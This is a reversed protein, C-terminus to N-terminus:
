AVSPGCGKPYELNSIGSELHSYRTLRGTSRSPDTIVPAQRRPNSRRPGAPRGEQAALRVQLPGAQTPWARAISCAGSSTTASARCTASAVAASSSSRTNRSTTDKVASTRPSRGQRQLAPGEGSEPAGLQAEEADDDQSPPVRWAQVPLGGPGTGQDQIQGAPAAKPCASQDHAYIRRETEKMERRRHRIGIWRIRTPTDNAVGGIAREITPDDTPRGLRSRRRISVVYM